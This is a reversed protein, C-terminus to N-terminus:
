ISENKYGDSNNVQESDIKTFFNFLFEMARSKAMPKSLNAEDYDQTYNPDGCDIWNVVTELQQPHSFYYSQFICSHILELEGKDDYELANYIKVKNPESTIAAIMSITGDEIRNSTDNYGNRFYKLCRNICDLSIKYCCGKAYYGVSPATGVLDYGEDFDRLYYCDSDIKVVDCNNNEESVYKMVELMGYHCQLGRLNGNRPFDASLVYSGKPGQAHSEVGTEFVYYVKADPEAKRLAKFHTDLLVLDRPCTFCVFVKNM